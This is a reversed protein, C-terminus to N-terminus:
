KKRRRRMLALSAMTAIALAGAPLAGGGPVM